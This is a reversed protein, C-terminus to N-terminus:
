AKSHLAQLTDFFGKKEALAGGQDVALYAFGFGAFVLALGLAAVLKPLSFKRVCRPMNEMGM